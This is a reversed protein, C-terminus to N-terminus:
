SLVAKQFYCNKMFFYSKVIKRAFRRKQQYSTLFSQCSPDKKRKLHRTMTVVVGRILLVAVM